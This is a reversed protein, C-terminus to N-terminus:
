AGLGRLQAVHVDTRQGIAHTPVVEIVHVRRPQLQGVLLELLHTLGTSNNTVLATWQSPSLSRALSPGEWQGHLCPERGAGITHVERARFGSFSLSQGQVM